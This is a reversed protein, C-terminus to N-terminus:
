DLSARLTRVRAVMTLELDTDMTTRTHEEVPEGLKSLISPAEKFPSNRFPALEDEPEM